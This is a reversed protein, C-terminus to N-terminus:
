TARRRRRRSDALVARRRRPARARAECPQSTPAKGSAACSSTSALGRVDEHRRLDVRDPLSSRVGSPVAQRARPAQHRGNVLALPDGEAGHVDGRRGPGRVAQDGEDPLALEGHAVRPVGDAGRRPCGCPRRRGRRRARAGPSGRRAGAFARRGAARERPGGREVADRLERAEDRREDRRDEAGRAAADVAAESAQAPPRRQGPVVPVCEADGLRRRLDVGCREDDLAPRAVRQARRLGSPGHGELLAQARRSAANRRARQAGRSPDRRDLDTAGAHEVSQWGDLARPAVDAHHRVSRAPTGRQRRARPRPLSSAPRLPPRAEGRGTLPPRRPRGQRAGRVGERVVRGHAEAGGRVLRPPGASRRSRARTSRQM